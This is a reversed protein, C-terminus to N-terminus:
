EMVIDGFMVLSEDYEEKSVKQENVTYTPQTNGLLVQITAEDSTSSFVQKCRNNELKYGIIRSYGMYLSNFLFVKQSKSYGKYGGHDMPLHEIKINGNNYTVVSVTRNAECSGHHLLMEYVGDQDIDIIYHEDITSKGDLFIIGNNRQWNIDSLLNNYAQIEEGKNYVKEIILTLKVKSSYRSVIGEYTYTGIKSTDVNSPNWTVEVEMTSNDTMKATVKSPLSYKDNQKINNNIDEIFAITIVNLTLKVTKDTNELNGTFTNLGVKTTDIITTDWKVPFQVEINNIKVTVKNPLSYSEGLTITKNINDVTIQSKLDELMSKIIEDNTLNYGDILIKIANAPNNGSIYLKALELYPEVKKPNIDIAEKLTNEAENFRGVNEYSKALEVRAEINKLDIEIVKHFALIAEEYKQEQLYKNGLTLEKKVQSAYIYKVIGIKGFILCFIVISIIVVLKQGRGELRQGIKKCFSM